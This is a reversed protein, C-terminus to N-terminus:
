LEVTRVTVAPGYGVVMQYTGPKIDSIDIMMPSVYHVAKVLRKGKKDFIAVKAPSGDPLTLRIGKRAPTFTVRMEQLAREHDVPLMSIDAPNFRVNVKLTNGKVNAPKVYIAQTTGPQSQTMDLTLHLPRMRSEFDLSMNDITFTIEVPESGGDARELKMIYGKLGTVRADDLAIWPSAEPDEAHGRTDYACISYSGRGAATNNLFFGRENLDSVANLDLDSPFSIYNWEGPVFTYKLQLQKVNVVGDKVNVQGASAADAYVTLCEIDHGGELEVRQNKDVILDRRLIFTCRAEEAPERTKDGPQYAEVVVRAEEPINFFHLRSGDELRAYEGGEVVRYFLPLGSSSAAKLEHDFPKYFAVDEEAAPWTISQSQKLSRKYYFRPAGVAVVDNSNGDGGDNGNIRVAAGGDIPFDWEYVNQWPVNGTSALTSSGNLLTFALRGRAPNTIVQGGVDAVFRDFASLDGTTAVYGDAHFGFGKVYTYKTTALQGSEGYGVDKSPSGWGTGISYPLDSMYVFRERGECLPTEVAEADGSFRYRLRHVCDSGAEVPVEFVHPAVTACSPLLSMVDMTRILSLNKANDYIDLSFEELTEEVPDVYFYYSMTGGSASPRVDLLELTPAFNFTFAVRASAPAHVDDGFTFAEVVIDGRKGRLPVLINGEEIVAVDSGQVITYYVPTGGSAAAELVVRPSEETLLGGETSFTVIQQERTEEREPVAYYLRAGALNCYDDTSDGRNNLVCKLTNLTMTGSLPWRAEFKCVKCAPNSKALMYGKWNTDAGNAYIEMRANGSSASGDARVDQVGMVFRVYDFTRPLRYEIYDAGSMPQASVGKYYTVGDLLMPAGNACMDNVVQTGVATTVPLDSLWVAGETLAANFCDTKVVTGDTFTVEMRYFYDGAKYDLKALVYRDGLLSCDSCTTSYGDSMRFTRTLISEVTKGRSDIEAKMVAGGGSQSIELVDVSQAHAAASVGALMVLASLYRSIAAYTFQRIKM